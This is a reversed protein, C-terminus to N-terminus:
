EKELGYPPIINFINNKIYIGKFFIVILDLLM